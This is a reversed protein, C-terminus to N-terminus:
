DMLDFHMLPTNRYRNLSDWSEVYWYITEGSRDGALRRISWWQSPTLEESFDQEESNSGSHGFSLVRKKSFAADSGFWVKFRRNSNNWWTVTPLASRSVTSLHPDGVPLPGPIVM